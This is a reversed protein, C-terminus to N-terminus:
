APTAVSRASNLLQLPRTIATSATAPRGQYFELLQKTASLAPQLLAPLASLALKIALPVLPSELTTIGIM